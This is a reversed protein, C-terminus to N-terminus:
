TDSGTIWVTMESIGRHSWAYYPIATMSESSIVTIGNLLDPRHEALLETSMDLSMELVNDKNDVSELAYVIPGREIAVKGACDEVKPHALVRRIPMEISLEITDGSKWERKVLIYGDNESIPVVSGNIRLEIEAARADAYRYLDSDPVPRGKAWSPLRLMLAFSVKDSPDIHIKITGDWPYQSEQRVKVETGGINLSTSSNIYLNIYVHRDQQAYIYEPLAPLLRVVNTPCCSCDFWAQRTLTKGFNFGYEADCALPNVYFFETGNLSVGSLFGNYLTREVIDYYKAEGSLLFMRHNWFISGIAACTENYSTLNPLKYNEDFAEGHHQAGVGGTLALKKEVVNSWIHNLANAYDVDGTLAAVDAMASYMYMARVSHGVAERQEIVPLHDQMYGPNGAASQLKRGNAHGRENLFFKALKLYKEEGSVRYLKILGLEVEQHGPVNRLADEGFVSCILDASRICIDLFPRKGTARFYATGAEYMHGLDYLEHSMYLNSWREPGAHQHPHAPDITRPTYLYGDAEQAEGIKVIISDIYAELDPDPYVQLAYAAGEIVKYVDSDNFWYGEFKGDMKGAAKVFNDIRGTEECKKFDYPISVTRNTEIRSYWFGDQIKVETFSIPQFPYDKHTMM